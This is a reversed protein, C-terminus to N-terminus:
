QCVPNVGRGRPPLARFAEDLAFDSGKQYGDRHEDSDEDCLKGRENLQLAQGGHHGSFQLTSIV